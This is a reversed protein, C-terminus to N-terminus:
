YPIYKQVVLDRGFLHDYSTQEMTHESFYCIYTVLNVLSYKIFISYGKMKM